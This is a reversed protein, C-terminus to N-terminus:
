QEGKLFEKIVLLRLILYTGAEGAVLIFTFAISFSLATQPIFQIAILMLLLKLLNAVAEINPRGLRHILVNFYGIYMATALGFSQIVFILISDKYEQGMFLLQFGTVSGIFFMIIGAFILWKSALVKKYNVLEQVTKLGMLEPLLISRVSDNVLSMIGLFTVSAGYLALQHEQNAGALQYQPLRSILIYAISSLVVWKGYNILRLFNTRFYSISLFQFQHVYKTILNYTILVALPIVYLSSIFLNTSSDFFWYGIGLTIIRLGSYIFTNVAYSKYDGIAQDCSRITSWINLLATAIVINTVETQRGELLPFALYLLKYVYGSLLILIIGQTINWLLSISLLKIDKVQKYLGITSINLGFNLILSGVTVIAIYLGFVGFESTPLAKTALLTIAFASINNALTSAFVKSFSNFYKRKSLNVIKEKLLM